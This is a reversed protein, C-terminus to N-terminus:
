FPPSRPLTALLRVKAAMEPLEAERKACEADMVALSDRVATLQDQITQLLTAKVFFQYKDQV